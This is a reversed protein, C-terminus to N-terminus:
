TILATVTHGMCKGGVIGLWELILTPNVPKHRQQLSSKLQSGRKQTEAPEARLAYM